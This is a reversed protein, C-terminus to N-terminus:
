GLAHATRKDLGEKWYIARIIAPNETGYTYHHRQPTHVKSSNSIAMNDGIYFGAHERPEGNPDPLPEWILIAGLKLSDTKIWGSAELDSILGKTTAHQNQILDFMKLLSSAFFACSRVGDRLLDIEEGDESHAYSNRFMNAGVSNEITKLYTRYLVFTIQHTM